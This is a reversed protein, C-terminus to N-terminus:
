PLHQTIVVKFYWVLKRSDSSSVTGSPYWILRFLQDKVAVKTDKDTGSNTKTVTLSLPDGNIKDYFSVSVLTDKKYTFSVSNENKVYGEPADTEWAYFTTYKSVDLYFKETANSAGDTSIIGKTSIVEKMESDKYLTVPTKGDKDSTILFTTGSYIDYSDSWGAIQSLKWTKTTATSTSTEKKYLTVDTDTTHKVIKFAGSEDDKSISDTSTGGIEVRFIGNGTQSTAYTNSSISFVMYKNTKDVYLIRFHTLPEIGDDEWVNHWNSVTVEACHVPLLSAAYWWGESGSSNACAIAKAQPVYYSYTDTGTGKETKKGGSWDRGMISIRPITTPMETGAKHSSNGCSGTVKVRHENKTYYLEYSKNNIKVTHKVLDNGSDQNVWDLSSGFNLSVTKGNKANSTIDSLPPALFFDCYFGSSDADGAAVNLTGLTGNAASYSLTGNYVNKASTATTYSAYYSQSAKNNQVWGQVGHAASAKIDKTLNNNGSCYETSGYYAYMGSYEFVYGVASKADSTSIPLTVGTLADMDNASVGAANATEIFLSAVKETITNEDIVVKISYINVPSGEITLEGTESDYNWGNESFDYEMQNDNVYLHVKAINFNSATDSTILPITTSTDFTPSKTTYHDAVAEVDSNSNEVTVDITTMLSNESDLTCSVLAQGRIVFDYEEGEYNYYHTPIYVIGTESDYVIDDLSVPNEDDNTVFATDLVKGTDNFRSYDLFAVYYDTNGEVSYVPMEAVYDAIVRDSDEYMNSLNTNDDCLSSDAMTYHWQIYHYTQAYGNEDYGDVTVVDDLGETDNDELYQVNTDVVDEIVDDDSNISIYHTTDDSESVTVDGEIFSGSITINQKPMTFTFVDDETEENALIKGTSDSTITFLQVKYGDDPIMQVEVTDGYSYDKSKDETDSFIIEGNDIDSLTVTYTGSSESAANVSIGSLGSNTIILVACLMLSTIKKFINM